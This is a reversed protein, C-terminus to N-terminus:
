EKMLKLVAQEEPNASKFSNHIKKIDEAFKSPDGVEIYVLTKSGANRVVVTMDVGQPNAYFYYYNDSIKELEAGNLEKVLAQAFEQTSLGGKNDVVQVAIHTTKDPATIQFNNNAPVYVGTWGDPLDVSMKGGALRAAGRRALSPSVDMGFVPYHPQVSSAGKGTDIGSSRAITNKERLNSHKGKESLVRREVM